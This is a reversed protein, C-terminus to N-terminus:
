TYRYCILNANWRRYSSRQRGHVNEASLVFSYIRSECDIARRVFTREHAKGEEGDRDSEREGTDARSQKWRLRRGTDLVAGELRDGLVEIAAGHVDRTLRMRSGWARLGSGWAGSGLKTVLLSSWTLDSLPYRFLADCVM